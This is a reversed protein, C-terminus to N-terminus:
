SNKLRYGDAKKEFVQRNALNVAITAKKVKRKGLVGEYLKERKLFGGASKLLNVIVDKVTGEEYGWERLAYTGRGVLVFRSDRILENHVTQPHVKKASLKMEEIFRSIERFHLPKGKKMLVLTAKERVGRPRILPWRAKGWDGFVNQGFKKSIELFSVIHEPKMQPFKQSFQSHDLKKLVGEFSLIKKGSDFITELEQVAANFYKKDFDAHIWADEMERNARAKKIGTMLFVIELIRAESASIENKGSYRSLVGSALKEAKIIGGNEKIVDNVSASLDNLSKVNKSKKLTKVADGEIQRVRERTINLSKGIAELTKPEGNGIGFRSSLVLKQKASLSDLLSEVVSKLDTRKVLIKQSFDTNERLNVMNESAIM